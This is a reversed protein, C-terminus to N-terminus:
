NLRGTTLLLLGGLFKTPSVIFRYTKGDIFIANEHCEHQTLWAKFVERGANQSADEILKVKQTDQDIIIDAKM